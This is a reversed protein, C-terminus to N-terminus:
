ISASRLLPEFKAAGGSRLWTEFSMLGPHLKRLAPIDVQTGKNANMYEYGKAATASQERLVDMPIQVYPVTKGTARSIAEAIQPPTLTDGALDIAKGRYLDPREFAFTALAGIDDLAILQQMVDPLMATTLAGDRLGWMPHVYNEMFSTPRLITASLGLARIHEEIAWKNELNAIGSRQEASNASAYVFHRVEATSAADAVKTAWRREDADDFGPPLGPMGKTPQVSFVGYVDRMAVDLSARDDMDGAVVQAGAGALAQASASSADRTLARVRWGCALLYSATAGGQQGTAGTVLITRDTTEM